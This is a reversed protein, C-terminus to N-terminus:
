KGQLFPFSYLKKKGMIHFSSAKQWSVWTKGENAKVKDLKAPENGNTSPFPRRPLTLTAAPKITLSEAKKSGHRKAFLRNGTEGKAPRLMSRFYMHSYAIAM